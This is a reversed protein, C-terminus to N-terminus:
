KNDFAFRRRQKVILEVIKLNFAVIRMGRDFGRDGDSERYFIVGQCKAPAKKQGCVPLDAAVSARKQWNMSNPFIRQSTSELQWVAGQKM